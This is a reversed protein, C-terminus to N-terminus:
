GDQSLAKMKIVSGADVQYRRYEDAKDEGSMSIAPNRYDMPSSQWCGASSHLERIGAAIFAPINECRVGAGAMIIPGKSQQTLWVLLELGQLATPQQGSTLIRAVGLDTLQELAQKPDRCMDFARHFTVALGDAAQMIQRMRPLDVSGDECLVGTVFGPFGLDRILAIDQLMAAFEERQYCFDGGGPRVIPYVPVSLGAAQKLMGYSPTLGGDKVAACLEIRDAGAQAANHACAVSYCCIELVM